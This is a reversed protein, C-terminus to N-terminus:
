LSPLRTSSQARWKHFKIYGWTILTLIVTCSQLCMNLFVSVYEPGWPAWLRALIGSMSYAVWTPFGQKFYIISCPFTQPLLLGQCRGQYMASSSDRIWKCNEFILFIVQSERTNLLTNRFDIYYHVMKNLISSNRSLFNRPSRDREWNGLHTMGCLFIGVGSLRRTGGSKKQSTQGKSKKREKESQVCRVVQPIKTGQGPILGLGWCLFCWARVVPGGPFERGETERKRRLGDRGSGRKRWENKSERHTDSDQERKKM